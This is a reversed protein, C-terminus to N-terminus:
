LYAVLQEVHYMDHGILMGILDETTMRGREPHVVTHGLQEQTLSELYAVTKVREDQFLRSQEGINSEAYKHDIAMQGEDYAAIAAGPTEVAVRVRERLIPEWDALHAVVERPTFRGESLPRDRDKEPILEVLRGIVRPGAKLGTLMYFHM